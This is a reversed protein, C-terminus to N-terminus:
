RLLWYLLLAGGILLLPAASQQTFIEYTATRGRAEWGVHAQEPTPDLPLWSGDRRQVELYVHSYNGRKTGHVKLRSRHGLTGLLSGLCVVKDDCDGTGFTWITRRADQVREQEVPDRRYTIEDRCYSYLAEIECDFDHGACGDTIELAKNRVLLDNSDRRILAAMTALTQEVGPLGDLLRTSRVDNVHM